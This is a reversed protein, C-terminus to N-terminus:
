ATYSHLAPVDTHFDLTDNQQCANAWNNLIATITHWNRFGAKCLQMCVYHTDATHEKATESCAQVQKIQKTIPM